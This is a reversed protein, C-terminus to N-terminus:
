VSVRRICPKARHAHPNTPTPPPADQAYSAQYTKHHAGCLNSRSPPTTSVTLTLVKQTGHKTSRLLTPTKCERDRRYRQSLQHILILAKNNVLTPAQMAPARPHSLQYMVPGYPITLSGQSRHEVQNERGRLGLCASFKRTTEIKAQELIELLPRSDDVRHKWTKGRTKRHSALEKKSM